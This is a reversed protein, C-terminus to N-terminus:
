YPGSIYWVNHEGTFSNSSTILGVFFSLASTSWGGGNQFNTFVVEAPQHPALYILPILLGFCGLVHFLLMLSEIQPLFRGMYTNVVLAFALAAYFLLTGHWRQYNYTPYNLILLGQVLTGSVYSGAAVFSQWTIVTLWGAM